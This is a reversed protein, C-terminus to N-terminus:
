CITTPTNEDGLQERMHALVEKKYLHIENRIPAPVRLQVANNRLSIQNSNLEVGTAKKVAAICEQKVKTDPSKLSTYRKLFRTLTHM